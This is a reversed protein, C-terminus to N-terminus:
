PQSAARGPAMAAKAGPGPFTAVTGAPGGGAAAAAVGAPSAAAAGSGGAPGGPNTGPKGAGPRSLDVVRVPVNDGRMLRSHGATIVADGAKLGEMIEVKGPLRLGIKVEMRQAVKQGNAGEALKFVLQRTGVPVLAEEPVVVAGQRTAFVVRPRAFM